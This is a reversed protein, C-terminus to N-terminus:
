KESISNEKFVVSIQKLTFGKRLLSSKIKAPDKKLKFTKSFSKRCLELEDHTSFFEDLSQSAINKSIGRNLLEACLRTRGEFHDISRNRLWAVSFRYDDLYNVSELYDLATNCALKDFNKALLKKYLGSRCQEARALYMMAAKEASYILAANLLDALEEENFFGSDGEKPQINEFDVDLRGYGFPLLKEENVLSLYDKRLFFASGTDPTIEYVGPLTQKINKIFM